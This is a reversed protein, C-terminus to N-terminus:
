PIIFDCVLVSFCPWCEPSTEWTLVTNSEPRTHRALGAVFHELKSGFALLCHRTEKSRKKNSSEDSYCCHIEADSATRGTKVDGPHQTGFQMWFLPACGHVYNRHAKKLPNESTLSAPADM